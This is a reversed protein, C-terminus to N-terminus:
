GQQAVAGDLFDIEEGEALTVYAKKWGQRSGPQGRFRKSKPKVNLTTVREVKVNFLSAVAAKIEAKGADPAVRFVFQNHQEGVNSSKESIHPNRLIEFVREQNM